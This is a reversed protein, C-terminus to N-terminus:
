DENEEETEFKLGGFIFETMHNIFKQYLEYDFSVEGSSNQVIRVFSMKKGIPLNDMVRDTFDSGVWEYNIQSDIHDEVIIKITDKVIEIEEESMYIKNKTFVFICSNNNYVLNIKEDSGPLGFVNSPLVLVGPEPVQGSNTSPNVQLM